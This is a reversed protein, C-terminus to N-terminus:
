SATPINPSTVEVGYGERAAIRVIDSQKLTTKETVSLGIRAAHNLIVIPAIALLQALDTVRIRGHIRIKHKFGPQPISDVTEELGSIVDRVVVKAEVPLTSPADSSMESARDIPADSDAPDIEEFQMGHLACVKNVDRVELPTNINTFIQISMLDKIVQFPKLGLETALAKPTIPKALRITSVKKPL